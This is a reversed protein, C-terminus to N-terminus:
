VIKSVNITTAHIYRDGIDRIRHTIRDTQMIFSFHSFSFDGFKACDMM